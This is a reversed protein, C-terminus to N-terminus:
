PQSGGAGTQATWAPGDLLDVVEAILRVMDGDMFQEIKDFVDPFQCGRRCTSAGAAARLESRAVLLQRVVRNGVELRQLDVVGGGFPPKKEDSAM